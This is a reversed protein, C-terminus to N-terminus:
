FLDNFKESLKNISEKKKDKTAAAYVDMTINISAHGMISQIVKLNTEQECLRTCFTHRLTHCTFSPLLFPEISHKEANMVAEKNYAKVIRKISTNLLPSTYLSHKKNLFVFDTMGGISFSYKKRHQYLEALVDYVVDIMPIDRNGASTKTPNVYWKVNFKEESNDAASVYGYGVTHNININKNKLDVDNWTLGAVEGIRCGTGLMVTFIPYLHCYFPSNGVYNIFEKQQKVTLVNVKEEEGNCMNRDANVTIASPSKIDSLVGDAPNSRIIGDRVALQFVQRLINHILKVSANALNEEKILNLYFCKIDSYKVNGIKCMGISNRIHCNYQVMYDAYTTDRISVRKMSIFKDFMKNVTVTDAAYINIGTLKAETIADEKRRLTVLDPAYVYRRKHTMDKYTFVYTNDKRQCEGKRLIRGRNDKRSKAMEEGEWFLPKANKNSHCCYIM